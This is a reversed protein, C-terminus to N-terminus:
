ILDIYMGSYIILTYRCFFFFVQLKGYTYPLFFGPVYRVRVFMCANM